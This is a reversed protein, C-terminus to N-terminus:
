CANHHPFVDGFTGQLTSLFHQLRLELKFFHSQENSYFPCNEKKILTFSQMILHCHYIKEGFASFSAYFALHKMSCNLKSHYLEFLTKALKLM